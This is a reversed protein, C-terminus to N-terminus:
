FVPKFIGHNLALNKQKDTNKKSFHGFLHMLSDIPNMISDLNDLSKAICSIVLLYWKVETIFLIIYAHIKFIYLPELATVEQVTSLRNGRDRSNNTQM